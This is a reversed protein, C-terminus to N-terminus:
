SASSSRNEEARKLWIERWYTTIRRPCLLRRDSYEGLCNVGELVICPNSFHMMEGTREDIIQTIRETVRFRMGCYRTMEEDIQLGRNRNQHNVTTWIEEKSKIEVLEGKKLDLRQDPTSQGKKILGMGHPAPFGKLWRHVHDYIWISLRYGRGLRRLQFVAALALTAIARDAKVNRTRVDRWYQRIDWWRLASSWQPLTTAQCRYIVTGSANVKCANRDLHGTELDSGRDEKEIDNRSSREDLPRLWATKWFLLCSAQCGGHASGDCRLDELHVANRVRRGGSRNVTDCTKHAVASVKFRRGAHKLMESMFPMREHEGLDDLSQLIERVPRVEVWDGARPSWDKLSGESM